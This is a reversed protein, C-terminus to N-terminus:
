RGTWRPPRKDHFARVGEKADESTVLVSSGLRELIRGTTPDQGRSSNMVHKVMGVALPAKRKLTQAIERAKTMLESAPVVWNVLNIAEAKQATVLEGLM